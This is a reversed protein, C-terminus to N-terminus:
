DGVVSLHRKARRQLAAARNQVNERTLPHTDGNALTQYHREMQGHARLVMGSSKLTYSVAQHLILITPQAEGPLIGTERRKAITRTILANVAVVADEIAEEADILALSLDSAVDHIADSM